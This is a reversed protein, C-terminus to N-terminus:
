LQLVLSRVTLYHDDLYFGAQQLVDVIGVLDNKMLRILHLQKDRVQPDLQSTAHNRKISDWEKELERLSKEYTRILRKIDTPLQDFYDVSITQMRRYAVVDNGIRKILFGYPHAGQPPQNTITAEIEDSLRDFTEVAFSLSAATSDEGRTLFDTREEGLAGPRFYAFAAVIIVLLFILSLMGVILYTRDTGQSFNATVGLIAEVVLVVLSFFGLPTKVAQIIGVRNSPAEGTSNQIAM